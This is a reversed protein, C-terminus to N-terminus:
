KIINKISLLNFFKSATQRGYNLMDLRKKSKSIVEELEVGQEKCYHNITFPVETYDYSLKTIINNVMTSYYQLFTSKVNLFSNIDRKICIGLVENKYCGDDICTQIPYHKSLGGDILYEGNYFIPKFIIPLASSISLADILSLEPHTKHSIKLSEWDNMKTGFIYFDVKTYDYFQQLTIKPNLDKSKLLPSMIEIFLKNDLLGKDHFLELFTEGTFTLLKNWPRKVIFDFLTDKEIQLLWIALVISGASVGYVSQIHEKSIFKKETLETMIGIMDIGNYGGGSLVLHKITM